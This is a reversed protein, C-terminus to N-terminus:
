PARTKGPIWLVDRAGKDNAFRAAVFLLDSLRNIYHLAAPGVPEVSALAAMKREARRATARAVHLRAALEAGGPLVFSDLPKLDGNLGDIEQELRTVQAPAIRLGGQTGPVSLDAGLDFLDNQLRALLADLAGGAQCRALGIASNAEDVAGIAAFRPDSKPRRTGDGLGSEGGDGSKTYIKTLRVM